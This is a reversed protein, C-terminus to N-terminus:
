SKRVVSKVSPCRYTQDAEHIVVRVARYGNERAESQTRSNTGLYGRFKAWALTQHLDATWALLKGLPTKIAWLLYFKRVPAKM